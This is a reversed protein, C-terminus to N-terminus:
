PLESYNTPNWALMAYIQLMAGQDLLQYGSGSSSPFRFLGQSTRYYNWADNAYTEITQLIQSQLAADATASYLVLLGRFFIANFAAPQTNLYESETFTNLAANALAEADSLYGVQGTKRYERVNTAIMAGQNYTWLAEDAADNGGLNDFMLPPQGPDFNPNPAQPDTPNANVNYLYHNAWGYMASAAADYQAANGPDLNELLLALEANPVTSNTTRSSNTQGAGIGQQVWYIGGPDFGNSAAWGGPYVFNLVNVAQALSSQNGTLQYNQALALGVWAQDDYYKDGGSGYPAPPYSDYGPGSSTGDWYHSLGTLRDNVDAQYSVGGLLASPIGSLTITGVLARSFPWLYSYRKGSPPDSEAYLSSTDGQYVDPAYLYSQMANYTSIARDANLQQTPLGIGTLTKLTQDAGDSTGWRCGACNTAVLRYHYTTAFSLGTLTASVTAPQLQSSTLQAPTRAGYSKTTGYQFYYTTPQGYPAASGSLTATTTSVSVAPWTAASPAAHLQLLYVLRGGPKVRVVVSAGRARIAGRRTLENLQLIYVGARLSRKAGGLNITRVHVGARPRLRIRAVIVRKDEVPFRGTLTEQPRGNIVTPQAGELRGGLSRTVDLQLSGANSLLLTVQAKAGRLQRLAAIQPGGRQGCFAPCLHPRRSPRAPAAGAALACISAVALTAACTKSRLKM